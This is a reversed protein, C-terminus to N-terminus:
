KGKGWPDDEPRPFQASIFDVFSRVKASLLRRSPYVMVVTVAPLRYAPLVRRLRESALDDCLSFSPSFVLGMGAAACQRLLDGNNSFMRSTIPINVSGHAGSVPWSHRLQELSFNLCAHRGLDQPVQPAGCRALYEPSACLYGESVGLQRAIMSADFKQVGGLFIGVDFGDEVLDVARDSLTVDLVVNPYNGAYGPLLRALQQWARVM